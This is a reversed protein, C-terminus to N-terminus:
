LLMLETQAAVDINDVYLFEGYAMVEPQTMLYKRDFFMQILEHSKMKKLHNYVIEVSISKKDYIDDDRSREHEWEECSVQSEKRKSRKEGGDGVYIKHLDYLIKRFSQTLRDYLGINQKKRTLHYLNVVEKALTRFSVNIRKIVDVSYKHIYPLVDNLVNLQYMEVYNRYQNDYNPISELVFKMIMTHLLVVSYRCNRKDYVKVMYGGYTIRKATMDNYNLVDLATLLEDMCSFTISKEEEIDDMGIRIVRLGDCMWLKTVTARDYSEFAMGLKRLSTHRVLLHYSLRIDLKDLSITSSLIRAIVDNTESNVLSLGGSHVVYWNEEFYFMCVRETDLKYKHVEYEEKGVHYNIEEDYCMVTDGFNVLVKGTKTNIVIICKRKDCMMILDNIEYTKVKQGVNTKFTAYNIYGDNNIFQELLEFISFDEM